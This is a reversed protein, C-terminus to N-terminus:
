KRALSLNRKRKRKKNAASNITDANRSTNEESVITSTQAKKQTMSDVAWKNIVTKPGNTDEIYTVIKNTVKFLEAIEAM